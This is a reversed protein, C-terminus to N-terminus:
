REALVLDFMKGYFWFLGFLVLGALWRGLVPLLFALAYALVLQGALVLWRKPGTRLARDREVAAALDTDV